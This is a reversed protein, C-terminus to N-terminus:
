RPVGPLRPVNIVNPPDKLRLDPIQCVTQLENMSQHDNKCEICNGLWFRLWSYTASAQMLLQLVCLISVKVHM